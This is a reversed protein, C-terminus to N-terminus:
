SRGQLGAMPLFSKAHRLFGIARFVKTSVTKVQVLYELHKLFELGSHLTEVDCYFYTEALLGVFACHSWLFVNLFFFSFLSDDDESSECQMSLGSKSPFQYYVSGKKM